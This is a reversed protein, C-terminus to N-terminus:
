PGGVATPGHGFAGSVDEYDAIEGNSTDVRLADSLAHAVEHRLALAKEKIQDVTLFPGMGSTVAIGAGEAHRYYLGYENVEYDDDFNVAIDRINGTGIRLTM